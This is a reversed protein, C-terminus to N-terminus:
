RSRLPAAAICSDRRAASSQRCDPVRKRSCFKPPWFENTANQRRMSLGQKTNKHWLPPRMISSALILYRTSLHRGLTRWFEVRVCILKLIDAFKQLAILYTSHSQTNGQKFYPIILIHRIIMWYKIIFTQLRTNPANDSAYNFFHKDVHHLEINGKWSKMATKWFKSFSSMFYTPELQGPM